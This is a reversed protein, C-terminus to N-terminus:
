IVKQQSLAPNEPCWMTQQLYVLKKLSSGNLSAYEEGLLLVSDMM